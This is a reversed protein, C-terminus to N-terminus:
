AVEAVWRVESECKARANVQRSSQVLNSLRLQGEVFDELVSAKESALILGYPM